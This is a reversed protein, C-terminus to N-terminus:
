VRISIKSKATIAVISLIAISLVMMAVTGFEPVIAAINQLNGKIEDIKESVDPAPAEDKIMGRLEERMAWEVEEILEENYQGLESEIYEYHELYATTAYKMALDKNGNSYEEDTQELLENISDIHNLIFEVYEEDFEEQAYVNPTTILILAFLILIPIFNM